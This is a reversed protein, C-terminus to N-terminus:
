RRWADEVAASAADIVADDPTENLDPILDLARRLTQYARPGIKEVLDAELASLIAVADLHMPLADEPITVIRQRRDHPDTELTILGKDVLQRSTQNVAQPSVGLLAAMDKQRSIGMGVLVLIQSEARSVQPWGRRTYADQLARDFWVFGQFLVAMLAPQKQAVVFTLAESIRPDTSPATKAKAPSRM